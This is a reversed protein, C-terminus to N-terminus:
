WDCRAAKPHGFSWCQQCCVNWALSVTSLVQQENLKCNDNGYKPCGQRLTRIHKIGNPPRGLTSPDYTKMNQAWCLVFAKYRSQQLTHEWWHKVRTFLRKYVWMTHTEAFHEKQFYSAVRFLTVTSPTPPNRATSSLVWQNSVMMHLTSRSHPAPSSSANATLANNNIQTLSDILFSLGRGQPVTSYVRMRLVLRKATRTLWDQPSHSTLSVNAHVGNLSQNNLKNSTNTTSRISSKRKKKYIAIKNELCAKPKTLSLRKSIVLQLVNVSFPM